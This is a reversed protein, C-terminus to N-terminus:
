EGGEGGAVGGVETAVGVETTVEVAEGDVFAEKVAASADGILLRQEQPDGGGETGVGDTGVVVLCTVAAAIGGILGHSAGDIPRPEEIVYRVVDEAAVLAGEGFSGVAM